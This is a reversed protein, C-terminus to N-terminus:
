WAAHAALGGNRAMVFQLMIEGTELTQNGQECKERYGLTCLM